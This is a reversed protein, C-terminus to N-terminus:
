ERVLIATNAHYVKVLGELDSGSSRSLSNSFLVGERKNTLICIQAGACYSSDSALPEYKGIMRLYGSLRWQSDISFAIGSSYVGVNNVLTIKNLHVSCLRAAYIAAVGM